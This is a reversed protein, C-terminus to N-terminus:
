RDDSAEGDRHEENKRSDPDTPQSGEVLDGWGKEFTGDRDLGPNHGLGTGVYVMEDEDQHDQEDPAMTGERTGRKTLLM